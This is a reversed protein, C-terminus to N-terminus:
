RNLFGVDDRNTVRGCVNMCILKKQIKVNVPIMRKGNTDDGVSLVTLHHRTDDRWLKKRRKVM